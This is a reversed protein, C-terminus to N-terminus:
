LSLKPKKSLHASDVPLLMALPDANGFRNKAFRKTYM